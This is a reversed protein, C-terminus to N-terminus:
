AKLPVSFRLWFVVIDPPALVAIEPTPLADAILMPLVAILALATTVIATPTSLAKKPLLSKVVASVILVPPVSYLAPDDFVLKCESVSAPPVSLLGADKVPVAAISWDAKLRSM